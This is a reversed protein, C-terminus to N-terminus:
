GNGLVTLSEAVMRNVLRKLLGTDSTQVALPELGRLILNKSGDLGNPCAHLHCRWPTLVKPHSRLLTAGDLLGSLVEVRVCVSVM